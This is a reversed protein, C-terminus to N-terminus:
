DKSFAPMQPSLVKEKQCCHGGLDDHLDEWCSFLAQTSCDRYPRINLHDIANISTEEM